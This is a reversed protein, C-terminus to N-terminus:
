ISVGGDVKMRLLWDGESGVQAKFVNTALDVAALGVSSIGVNILIMDEEQISANTELAVMATVYDDMLGAADESKVSSPM